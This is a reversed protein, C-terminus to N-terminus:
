RNNGVIEPPLTNLKREMIELTSRRVSTGEIPVCRERPYISLLVNGISQEWLSTLVKPVHKKFMLPLAETFLKANQDFASTVSESYIWTNDNSPQVSYNIHHLRRNYSMLYSQKNEVCQLSHYLDIREELPIGTPNFGCGGLFDPIFKVIDFVRKQRSKMLTRFREGFNSALDLFSDDSIARWKLQPIVAEPIILKGGFETLSDSSITKSESFPIDMTTLFRRYAENLNDDLIVVDDGLVFFDDDHKCDNLTYLMMGHCLAFSAFSPYLGLPQGTKWSITGNVLSCNWRARSLDGFLQIGDKRHYLVDLLKEQLKLPFRDTANSLDIAHVFKNDALHKQLITFPRSQEHTCDWPLMALKRYLDDGLPKLAAQYVRAPNAVARLKLGPEQILGIKGVNTAYYMNGISIVDTDTIGEMLPKFINPYKRVCNQGTTTQDLFSYACDLTREGEPFSAGNAHPERRTSSVPYFLLPEPDPYFGPKFWDLVASCLKESYYDGYQEYSKNDYNVASIFKDKQSLTVDSSLQSSYIQLLQIAKSWRKWNHGCWTQLGGFCGTYRDNKRSTWLSVCPKGAKLNIFDQKVSKFRNVTWEPGNYKMCDIFHNVIPIAIESPIVLVAAYAKLTETQKKDIISM